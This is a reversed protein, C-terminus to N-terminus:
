QTLRNASEPWQRIVQSADFYDRWATIKGNRLEFTGMVPVEVWKGGPLFRDTRETLVRGTTTEAINHVKWDVESSVAFMPDLISRIAETGTVPEMPINHYLCEADLFELARGIDRTNCARIFSLVVEQNNTITHPNQIERDM